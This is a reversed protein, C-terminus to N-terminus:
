RPKLGVHAIELTEIAVENKSGGKIAKALLFELDTQNHQYAAPPAAQQVGVAGGKPSATREARPLLDGVNTRAGRKTVDKSGRQQRPAKAM